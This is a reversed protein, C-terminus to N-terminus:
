PWITRSSNNRDVRCYFDEVLFLDVLGGRRSERGMIRASRGSHSPTNEGMEEGPQRLRSLKFHDERPQIVQAVSIRHM